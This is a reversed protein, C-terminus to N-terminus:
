SVLNQLGFSSFTLDPSSMVLNLEKLVLVQGAKGPILIM